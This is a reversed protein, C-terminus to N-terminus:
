RASWSGLLEPVAPREGAGLDIGTADRLGSTLWAGFGDDEAAAFLRQAREPSELELYAILLAGLPTDALYCASKEVGLRRELRDHEERRERHLERILRRALSTRGMRM